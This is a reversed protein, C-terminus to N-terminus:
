ATEQIKEQVILNILTDAAIGRKRAMDQIQQSLSRDIAYYTVESRVEVSFDADRTQDWFADLDHSDWFEGIERYSKGQSLSSKSRKM